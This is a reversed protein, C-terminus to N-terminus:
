KLEVNNKILEKFKEIHRVLIVKAKEVNKEKLAKILNNHDDFLSEDIAPPIHWFMRICDYIRFYAEELQKNGCKKVILAHLNENILFYKTNSKAFKNLKKLQLELESKTLKEIANELASIELIKRYDYLDYIEKLSFKKVYCGVRPVIRIMGRNELRILANRLPTKSVKLERQFELMNIKEGFEWKGLLIQEKIIKELKDVLSENIEKFYKEM